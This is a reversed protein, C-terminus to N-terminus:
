ENPDSSWGKISDEMHFTRNQGKVYVTGEDPYVITDRPVRTGIDMIQLVDDGDNIFQHALGRGAPKAIVNGPSVRMEQGDFRLIGTGAMIMFFEEQLDHAHYKASSSGPKVYDVNVYFQETGIADGVRVTKLRSSFEPDDMFEKPINAINAIHKM